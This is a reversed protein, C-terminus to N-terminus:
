RSCNLPSTSQRKKGPTNEKKGASAKTSKLRLGGREYLLCALGGLCLAVFIAGAVALLVLFEISRGPDRSELESSTTVGGSHAATTPANSNSSNSSIGSEKATSTPSLSLGPSTAQSSSINAPPDTHPITTPSVPPPTAQSAPPDTHPITTPSVAPLTAQSEPPRTPPITSPFVSSLTAATSNAPVHYVLCGRHAKGRVAMSRNTRNFCNVWQDLDVLATFIHVLFMCENCMNLLCFVSVCFICVRHSVNSWIILLPVIVLFLYPKFSLVAESFNKQHIM